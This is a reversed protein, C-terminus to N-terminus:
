LVIFDEGKKLWFSMNEFNHKYLEVYVKDLMKTVSAYDLPVGKFILSM